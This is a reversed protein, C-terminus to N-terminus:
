ADLKHIPEISAPKNINITICIPLFNEVQEKTLLRDKLYYQGSKNTINLFGAMKILTVNCNKLYEITPFKKNESEKMIESAYINLTSIAYDVSTRWAYHSQTISFKWSKITVLESNLSKIKKLASNYNKIFNCLNDLGNKKLSINVSEPFLLKNIHPELKNILITKEEEFDGGHQEMELYAISKKM